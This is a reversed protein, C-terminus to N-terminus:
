SDLQASEALLQSLMSDFESSLEWHTTRAQTVQSLVNNRATVVGM